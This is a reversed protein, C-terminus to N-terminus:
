TENPVKKSKKNLEIDVNHLRLGKETRKVFKITHIQQYHQLM